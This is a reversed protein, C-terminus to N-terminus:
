SEITAINGGTNDNETKRSRQMVVCDHQRSSLLPIMIATTWAADM